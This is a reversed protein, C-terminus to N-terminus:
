RGGRLKNITASMQDVIFVLRAILDPYHAPNLRAILMEVSRGPDRDEAISLRRERALAFLEDLARPLDPPVLTVSQEQAKEPTPMFKSPVDFCLEAKSDCMECPGRSMTFFGTVGLKPLCQECVFM